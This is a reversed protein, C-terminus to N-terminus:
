LISCSEERSEASLTLRTEVVRDRAMDIVNVNWSAPADGVPIQSAQDQRLRWHSFGDCKGECTWTVNGFSELTEQYRYMPHPIRQVGQCEKCEYLLPVERGLFCADCVSNEVLTKRIQKCESCKGGTRIEHIDLDDAKRSVAIWARCRPCRGAREQDRATPKSLVLVCVSCLNLTEGEKGCCPLKACSIENDTGGDFCITCRTNAMPEKASLSTGEKSITGDKEAQASANEGDKLPETEGKAESGSCLNLMDIDALTDLTGETPKKLSNRIQKRILSTEQATLSPPSIGSPIIQDVLRTTGLSEEFESQGVVGDLCLVCADMTELPTSAVTSCDVATSVATEEEEVIFQSETVREGEPPM